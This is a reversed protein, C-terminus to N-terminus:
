FKLHNLEKCAFIKRIGNCLAFDKPCACSTTLHSEQKVVIFSVKFDEASKKNTM